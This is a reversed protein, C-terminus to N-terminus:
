LPMSKCKCWPHVAGPPPMPPNDVHWVMGARSACHPDVNTGTTVWKLYTANRAVRDYERAVKARRQGAKRHLSLYRRERALGATFEGAVIAATLRKSAALLYKARMTPEAAAMRRVMTQRGYRRAPSGWRTRGTLPPDLTLRGAARVARTSLGLSALRSVLATPLAVAQVAARTALYAAVAAVVAQEVPTLGEGPQYIYPDVLPAPSTM